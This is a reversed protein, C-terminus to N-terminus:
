DNSISSKVKTKGCKYRYTAYLFAILIYIINILLLKPTMNKAAWYTIFLQVIISFYIIIKFIVTNMNLHSDKWESPYKKPLNLICLDVIIKTFYGVLVLNNTIDKVPLGAAIPIIGVLYCITIMVIPVNRKNTKAFVKPLFGDMAARHIPRTYAVMSSNMTTTLCMGPGFLTYAAFLITPFIIKAVDTLPKGAVEKVPLVNAAVIATFVYIVAIIFTTVVIAWPIDRKSNKAENSYNITLYHGSTSYILLIFASIFGEKGKLFYDQTGFDIPNYQLNKLGFIIFGLLTIILVATMVKQVKAMLEVGFLNLIFFISLITIGVIKKNVQPFISTFYLAFSTGYLAMPLMGNLKILGYAGGLLEGGLASVISYDGGKVRMASAIFIYPVIAVFGFIVALLYAWPVSRGTEAIAAGLVTIVGAGIVQGVALGLLEPRGLTRTSESNKM